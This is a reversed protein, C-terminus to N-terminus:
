FAFSNMKHGTEQFMGYWEEFVKQYNGLTSGRSNEIVNHNNTVMKGISHSVSEDAKIKNVGWLAMYCVDENVWSFQSSKNESYHM